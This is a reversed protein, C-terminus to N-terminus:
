SKKQFLRVLIRKNNIFVKLKLEKTNQSDLPFFMQADKNERFNTPLKYFCIDLFLLVAEFHTESWQM